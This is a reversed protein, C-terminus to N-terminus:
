EASYVIHFDEKLTKLHVFRSVKINKQGFLTPSFITEM